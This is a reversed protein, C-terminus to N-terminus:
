MHLVYFKTMIVTTALVKPFQAWLRLTGPELGMPPLAHFTNPYYLSIASSRWLVVLTSKPLSPFEWNSMNAGAHVLSEDMPPGAMVGQTGERHEWFSYLLWCSLIMIMLWVAEVSFTVHWCPIKACADVRKLEATPDKWLARLLPDSSRSVPTHRKREYMIVNVVDDNCQLSFLASCSCWCPSAWFDWRHPITKICSTHRYSM